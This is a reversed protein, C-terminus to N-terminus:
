DMLVLHILKRDSYNLVFSTFRTSVEFIGQEISLLIGFPSLWDIEFLLKKGGADVKKEGGRRKKRNVRMRNVNSTSMCLADLAVFLSLVFCDLMDFRTKAVRSDGVVSASREESQRSHGRKQKEPLIFYESLTYSAQMSANSQRGSAARM